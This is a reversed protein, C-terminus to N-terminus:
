VRRWGMRGFLARLTESVGVFVVGVARWTRGQSSLREKNLSRGQTDLTKVSTLVLFAPGASRNVLAVGDNAGHVLLHKAPLIQHLVFAEFSDLRQEADTMQAHPLEYSGHGFAPELAGSKQLVAVRLPADLEVVLMQEAAGRVVLGFHQIVERDQLLLAEIGFDIGVDVTGFVGAAEAVVAHGMQMAPSVSHAM